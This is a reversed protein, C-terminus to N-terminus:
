QFIGCLCTDHNVPCACYGLAVNRFGFAWVWVVAEARRPALVLFGTVLLAALTISGAVSKLIRERM